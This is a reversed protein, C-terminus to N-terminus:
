RTVSAKTSTATTTAQSAKILPALVAEMDDLTKFPAYVKGNIDIIPPTQPIDHLTILTKVAALDLAYDFTYVDVQPYKEKVARLIYQQTVCTPCDKTAYFYLIPISKTNCQENMKMNLLYDKIELISYYRKLRFVEPNDLGLQQEMFVLKSSLTNLEQRITSRDFNKCSAEKLLDFQTELSLIDIAIKDEAAKLEDTKQKNFYNSSFLAISFLLATIVLASFYYLATTSKKNM